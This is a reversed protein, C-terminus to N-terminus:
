QQTLTDNKKVNIMECPNQKSILDGVSRRRIRYRKKNSFRELSLKNVAKKSLVESTNEAYAFNYMNMCCFIMVSIIIKM